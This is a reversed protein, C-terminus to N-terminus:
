RSRQRYDFAYVEKLFEAMKVADKVGKASEVGSSVDVACPRCVSLASGVNEPTLGGALILGRGPPSVARRWEFAHGTGGKADPQYADLLL